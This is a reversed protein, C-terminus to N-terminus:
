PNVKRETSPAPAALAASYLTNVASMPFNPDHTGRYSTALQAYADEIVQREGTILRASVALLRDQKERLLRMYDDWVEALLAAAESQLSAYNKPDKGIGTTVAEHMAKLRYLMNEVRDTRREGSAAVSPPTTQLLSWVRRRADDCSLVCSEKLPGGYCCERSSKDAPQKVGDM